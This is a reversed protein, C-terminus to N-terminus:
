IHWCHEKYRTELEVDSAHTLWSYDQDVTPNDLVARTNALATYMDAPPTTYEDAPPVVNLKDPANSPTNPM